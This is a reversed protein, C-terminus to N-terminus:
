HDAALNQASERDHNWTAYVAMVLLLFFLVAGVVSYTQITFDFDLAPRTFYFSAFTGLTYLVQWILGLHQKGMVAFITSIPSAIFRMFYFPVMLAAIQGAMLWSEGFVLGFIQEGWLFTVLLPIVIIAALKGATSILLPMIPISQEKYRAIQQFYVQGVSMGLTNLPINLLRIGIAYYGAEVLSFYSVLLLPPLNRALTNLVVNWSSYLPFKKHEKAQDIVRSLTVSKLSSSDNSTIFRFIYWAASVMQGAVFGLLLGLGSVFGSFAIGIQAAATGMGLLSKGISSVKFNKTRTYWFSFTSNNAELILILPIFFILSKVKLSEYALHIFPPDIVIILLVLCGFIFALSIALVLIHTADRNNKALPLALEFRLTSFAGLILALSLIFQLQGFDEPAFLRSLVPAALIVSLQGLATGSSLTAVNSAFTGKTFIRKLFARV